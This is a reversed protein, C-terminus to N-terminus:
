RERWFDILSSEPEESYTGRIQTTYTRGRSVLNVSHEIYPESILPDYESGTEFVKFTYRGPALEQYDGAEKFGLSSGLPIAVAEQAPAEETEPVADKVAFVDVEFPMEVMTNVFRWYIKVPDDQPLNDELVFIEYSEVTGVLFASHRQGAEFAEETFALENGELDKVNLDFTGTPVVAYANSPYVGGFDLGKVGEESTSTVATVKENGLYFNASPADEVHFFFKALSEDGTVPETLEPIANEECAGFFIGAAVIVILKNLTKRM